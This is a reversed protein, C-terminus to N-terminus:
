RVRLAELNVRARAYDPDLLLAHAYAARARDPDGAQQWAFGLNNWARAKGPSARVTAEWLAIESTYDLNRLVTALGLAAM